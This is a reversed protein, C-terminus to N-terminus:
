ASLLSFYYVGGPSSREGYGFRQFALTTNRAICPRTARGIKAAIAHTTTALRRGTTRNGLTNGKRGGERIMLGM